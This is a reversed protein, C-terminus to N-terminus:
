DLILNKIFSKPVDRENMYKIKNKLFKKFAKKPLLDQFIDTSRKGHIKKTDDYAVRNTDYFNM